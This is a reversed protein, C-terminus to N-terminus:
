GVRFPAFSLRHEPCPGLRRIADLHVETGYGMHKNFAYGPYRLNIEEMINDRTEKAIISAAAISVSRADGKIISLQKIPLNIKMADILLFDPKVKLDRVAKEMALISAQYININDIEKASVMGVGIALAHEEIQKVLTQRKAKSLQKSDNLGIIPKEPNLIVAAAVVPGALPGRGAEDIGAIMNFRQEYCRHEFDLMCEYQKILAEEKEKQRLFRRLLVQVGKREDEQLQHLEEITLMKKKSLIDEIEKVSKEHM